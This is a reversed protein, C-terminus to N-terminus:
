PVLAEILYRTEKAGTPAGALEHEFKTTRFELGDAPKSLVAAMAFYTDEVGAWHVAGNIVERGPTNKNDNITQAIYRAQTKDNLIAIGQPAVSYFSYHGVGQDGTNPGLSIRVNNLQKGDREITLGFAVDYRDPSFTIRKRVSLGREPSKLEFEISAPQTLSLQDTDAGVITWNSEALVADVSEDGTIVKLPANRPVQQLGEKSVLELVQPNGKTTSASLLVRDSIKNKKLIWSTALAGQSDFEIKYLPTEIQVVRKPATGSIQIKEVTKNSSQGPANQAGNQEPPTTTKIQNARKDAPPTLYRSWAYFIAISIIVFIVFRKPEM